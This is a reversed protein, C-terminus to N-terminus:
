IFYLWLLTRCYLKAIVKMM